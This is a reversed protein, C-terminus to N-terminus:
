EKVTADLEGACAGCRVTLSIPDIQLYDHGHTGYPLTVRRRRHEPRKAYPKELTWHTEGAANTRPVQCALAPDRRAADLAEISAKVQAKSLFM